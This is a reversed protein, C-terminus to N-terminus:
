RLKYQLDNKNRFLDNKTRFLKRYFGVGPFDPIADSHYAYGYITCILNVKTANSLDQFATHDFMDTKIYIDILALRMKICVPHTPNAMLRTTIDHLKNLETEINEKSGIIQEIEDIQNKDFQHPATCTKTYTPSHMYQITINQAFELSPLTDLPGELRTCNPYQKLMYKLMIDLTTKVYEILIANTTGLASGLNALVTDDMDSFKISAIERLICQEELLQRKNLVSQPQTLISSVNEKQDALTVDLIKKVQEASLNGSTSRDPTRHPLHAIMDSLALNLGFAMDIQPKMAQITDLDFRDLMEKVKAEVLGAVVKSDPQYPHEDEKKCEDTLRKQELLALSHEKQQKELKTKYQTVIEAERKELEEGYTKLLTATRKATRKEIEEKYKQTLERQDHDHQKKQEIIQNEHTQQKSELKADYQKVITQINLSHEKQQSELMEKVKAEALGAVVKSDPQYPHEDEKKCEDTLRKQELLALSHEKQQKELKTKYQTVIEAERKELEEGYTKLLTATRKATRKEIEEKYKQTLERQDHDHQKKQEIIQNEHTQQKSELKAKYQKVIKAKRNALEGKCLRKLEGHQQQKWHYPEKSQTEQLKLNAMDIKLQRNQKNMENIINNKAEIAEKLTVELQENMANFTQVQEQKHKGNHKKFAEHYKRKWKQSIETTLEQQAKKHRESIQDIEKNHKIQQKKNTEVLTTYENSIQKFKQELKTPDQKHHNEFQVGLVKPLKSSLKQQQLQNELTNYREQFEQNKQVLTEMASKYDRIGNKYSEQIEKNKQVLHAMANEYGATYGQSIKLEKAEKDEEDVILTYLRYAEPRLKSNITKIYETPDEFIHDNLALLTGYHFSPVTTQDREYTQIKSILKRRFMNFYNVTHARAPQFLAEKRRSTMYTTIWVDSPLNKDKDSLIEYMASYFLFKVYNVVSITKASM